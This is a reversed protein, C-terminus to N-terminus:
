LMGVFFFGPNGDLKSRNKGIILVSLSTHHTYQQPCYKRGRSRRSFIADLLVAGYQIMKDAQAGPYLAADAAVDGLPPNPRILARIGPPPRINTSYAYLVVLSTLPRYDHM